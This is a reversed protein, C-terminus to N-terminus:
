PLSHDKKYCFKVDPKYFFIHQRIHSQMIITASSQVKLIFYYYYICLYNNISFFDMIVQDTYKIFKKITYSM